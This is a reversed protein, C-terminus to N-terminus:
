CCRGSPPWRRPASTSRASGGCAPPPRWCGLASILGPSVGRALWAAVSPMFLMPLSLAATALGAQIEGLGDIGIFRMPMLVLLVVYCYCTAVPLAQVFRPHRFLSLDLMPRAVREIRVFLLACLLAGALAGARADTM